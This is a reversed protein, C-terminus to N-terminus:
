PEAWLRFLYWVFAAIGAAYALIAAGVLRKLRRAVFLGGLRGRYLRRRLRTAASPGFLIGPLRKVNGVIRVLVGVRPTLDRILDRARMDREVVIRPLALLSSWGNSSGKHNSCATVYGALEVMRRVRRNYGSRPIALHRIPRGLTEGLRRRSENLEWLVEADDLESLIRHTVTHSEIAVGGADMERMQESTLFDDLGAVRGRTYEDPELTAFITAKMGLRRLIPWAITFNSRYGDDFTIVLPRAPMLRLGRRIEVFQDLSLTTYGEAKLATMQAEFMDDYAAYIAEEDSVRKAEVDVRSVLRHYLLIPIRDRRFELYVCRLIESIAFVPLIFFVVVGLTLMLADTDL